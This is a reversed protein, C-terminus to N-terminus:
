RRRRGCNLERTESVKEKTRVGHAGVSHLTFKIRYTQLGQLCPAATPYTGALDTTEARMPSMRLPDIITTYQDFRTGPPNLTRVQTEVRVGVYSHHSNLQDCEFEGSGGTYGNPLDAPRSVREIFCVSVHANAPAAPLGVLAAALLAVAGTRRM